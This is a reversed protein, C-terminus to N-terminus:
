RILTLNGKKFIDKGNLDKATIYYVFTGVDQLKGKYTGDWGRGLNNLENIDSSSYVEEGWRNYIRIQYDGIYKGFVTFYDNTGDGNPTFAQPVKIYANCYDVGIVVTDTLKCSHTDTVMLLYQTTTNYSFVPNLINAASLGTSPIWEVNDSSALGQMVYTEGDCLTTDPGANVSLPYVNILVSDIKKCGDPNTATLVYDTGANSNFTPNLTNPQDLSTVPTWSLTATPSATAIMVYNVYPCVITDPGAYVRPLTDVTVHVSDTNTCGTTDFVRIQYEGSQTPVFNITATTDGNNWIYKLGGKTRYYITVDLVKPGIYAGFPYANVCGQVFDIIGDTKFVVGQQIGIGNGYAEDIAPSNTTTIYFAETDGAAITKNLEFPIVTKSLVTSPHAITQTTVPFWATPTQQYGKYTGPKDYIATVTNNIRTRFSVAFSDLIIDDHAIINFMGGPYSNGISSDLSIFTKPYPPVNGTLSVTDGLCVTKDPKANVTFLSYVTVAWSGTDQGCANLSSSNIRYTGLSDFVLYVQNNGLLSPIIRVGPPASWTYYTAPVYNAELLATDGQCVKKPGTIHIAPLTTIVYNYPASSPGFCGFNEERVYFVYNGIPAGALNGLFIQGPEEIPQGGNFLNSNWWYKSNSNYPVVYLELLGANNCYVSDAQTSLITPPTSSPAGITIRIVTGTENWPENSCNSIIRMYYSGPAVPLTALPGVILKFNGSISDHYVGLGGINVIGFTMMDLLEITWNNCTDYNAGQHWQNDSINLNVTDTANPYNICVQIDHTNNTTVDCQTICFPGIVTGVAAPNSSVIRIYYGCAPPVNAPILGSVTGPMGPYAQNSVLHGLTDAHAFNGNSDSLQAYYVNNNNFNGFSNFAVDIASKVCTTDADQMVPASNTIISVPCHHIAFCISTDSIIQPTPALRKIVVKFCNGEVTNPAQIFIYGATDPAFISFVGEDIPHGFNGNSDSLLIDYTGDCLPASLSYGLLVNDLQCVTDPAVYTISINVPNNINDYTGVALIDDIGWSVDKTTDGGANTWRFGFVLNQKNNFAPDQLSEYQWLGSGMYKAQGTQIWPGGDAQYYVRGYATSDGQGTWFFTFVVDTLGLTCFPSGIYCFRDSASAPNWNADAYNPATVDHIHLYNSYPANNITGSVVSDENLTNPYLPAGIYTNNIIWDNNGRNLGLGGSDIVFSTPGNDFGETFLLIQQQAASTQYIFALLLWISTKKFLLRGRGTFLKSM